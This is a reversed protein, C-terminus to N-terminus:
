KDVLPTDKEVATRILALKRAKQYLKKKRYELNYKRQYEKMNTIKKEKKPVRRANKRACCVDCQYGREAYRARCVTCIRNLKCFAIVKQYPTKM